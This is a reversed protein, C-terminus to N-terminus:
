EDMGRLAAHLSVLEKNQAELQSRLAAMDEELSSSVEFGGSVERLLLGDEWKTEQQTLAEIVCMKPLMSQSELIFDDSVEVRRKTELHWERERDLAQVLVEVKRMTELHGEREEDLEQVLVEVKKKTEQHGERERDLDQKSALSYDREEEYLEKLM